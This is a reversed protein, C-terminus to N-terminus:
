QGAVWYKYVTSLTPAQPPGTMGIRESVPMMVAFFKEMAEQSEWLDYVEIGSSGAVCVHTLCGAFTDGPLKRLETNLTDYQEQTVGPLTAHMLIAM